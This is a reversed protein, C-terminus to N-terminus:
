RWKLSRLINSYDDTWLGVGPRPELAAWRADGDLMALDAPQRAIAVWISSTKTGQRQEAAPDDYRQLRGVIGADDVLNAMVGSLDINRNSIHFIIIGGDALKRLYLALAERTILHIPIAESSFADLIMLDYGGDPATVLSLRADGYVVDTDGACESMYHFYRTDRALRDVAPDIEYFTWSEGPRRYCVAAGTGLGIAGVRELTKVGGLAAFLQGLPGDRHYYILPERWRSPDTYQAGHVTTGHVFLNIDGAESRKVTYVGFFSRERTVISSQTATFATAVLITAIGLGFRVPRKRFSYAATGLVSFFVVVGVLGLDIPRVDFLLPVVGFVALLAAPFVADLWSVFRTDDSERPRLMCALVLVLPYEFVSDFVVPAVLVNFVGGLMGGLSMWLYFETLDEAGPRRKVLEGHCVMAMVFFVAMHAFFLSPGGRAGWWFFIAVLIAFFPQAKVMWAHKLLPRRAFVLVFTLLYLTLPIVWLLPVAAIDTTVHVTVGLLLSSPAFSLVLWHLRRRWTITGARPAAAAQEPAPKDAAHRRWLTVACAGILVVLLAYASAWAWSQEDLRLLPEIVVPYGLLALISGLNSAGYLFYPDPAASHHTHSFWRQLLPANTAVAFFPLGVSVAFLGILWPVPAGETPPTWGAAVGIPLALFVMAMVAVHLWAQQKVGLYRTTLHAYVYGALLATQFFLMATSWVAPSGGLLPLVMKTFMPQVSFVLLASLFMTAMFISLVGADGAMGSAPAPARGGPGGRSNTVSM